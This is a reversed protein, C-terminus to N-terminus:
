LCDELVHFLHFEYMTPPFTLSVKAIDTLASSKCERHGLSKIVLYVNALFVYLHVDFSMNLLTELTCNTIHLSSHLYM